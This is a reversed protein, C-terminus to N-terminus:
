QVNGGDRDCGDDESDDDDREGDGGGDGGCLGSSWHRTNLGEVM